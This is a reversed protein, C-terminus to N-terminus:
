IVEVQPTTPMFGGSENIVDYYPRSIVGFENIEQSTLERDLIVVEQIINSEPKFLVSDNTIEIWDLNYEEDLEGNIYVTSTNIIINHWENSLYRQLHISFSSPLSIEIKLTENNLKVAMRGFRGEIFEISM